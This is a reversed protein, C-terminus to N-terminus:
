AAFHHLSASHSDLCTPNLTRITIACWVSIRGNEWPKVAIERTVDASVKAPLSRVYREAQGKARIMADSWAGTDRVPGSKKAAAAIAGAQVAAAELASLEERRAAFQKSEFVFHGRRYLDIFNTSSGGPVKVPYEFSYGDAHSNSPAPVGLLHALGLLFAQSNARENAEARTWHDIFAEPTAPLTSVM